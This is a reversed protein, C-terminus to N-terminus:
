AEWTGEQPWMDRVGSGSPPSSAGRLVSGKVGSEAKKPAWVMGSGEWVGVDKSPHARHDNKMESLM